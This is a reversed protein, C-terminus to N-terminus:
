YIDRVSGEIENELFYIVDLLVLVSVNVSVLFVLLVWLMGILEVDYLFLNGNM